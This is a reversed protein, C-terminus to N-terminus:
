FDFGVSAFTNADYEFHDSKEYAYDLSLGFLNLGVGLTVTSALTDMVSFEKYGGSITLMNFLFGPTYDMGASMLTNIGDFKFQGMLDIDGFPYSAGLIVQLPLEEEGTYTPDETDKYQITTPILNRAFLSVNLESFSYLLGADLNYGSGTYTHIENMYGVASLGLHLQKTISTQYGVKVIRNKYSFVGIAEIINGNKRTNPIDDVGADMYGIGFAGISSDIAVSVNRYSVEKMIESAFVSTSIVNVHHLGAPNEFIANSGKSFGEINGRRIMEASSGLDTLMLYSAAEVPPAVFLLAMLGIAWGLMRGNNKIQM